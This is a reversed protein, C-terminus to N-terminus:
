YTWDIASDQFAGLSDEIITGNHVSLRFVGARGCNSLTNLSLPNVGNETMEYQFNSNGSNLGARATTGGLGGSGGSANGTTWNLNGYRIIIEADGAGQDFIEIQYSNTKTVHDSSTANYYDVNSWTAVFSDHAANYGFSVTGSGGGRTDVDGM